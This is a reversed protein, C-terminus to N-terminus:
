LAYFQSHRIQSDLVSTVDDMGVCFFSGTFMLVELLIM